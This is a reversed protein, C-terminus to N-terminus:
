GGTIIVMGNPYATINLYNVMGKFDVINLSANIYVTAFSSTLTCSILCNNTNIIIPKSFLMIISVSNGQIRAMEVSQICTSAISSALSAATIEEAVISASIGQVYTLGILISGMSLSTIIAIIETLPKHM